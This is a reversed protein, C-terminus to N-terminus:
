REEWAMFPEIRPSLLESHTRAREFLNAILQQNIHTTEDEPVVKSAVDQLSLCTCYIVAKDLVMAKAGIYESNFENLTLLVMYLDTEESDSLHGMFVDVMLFEEDEDSRIYIIFNQEGLLHSWSSMRGDESIELGVEIGLYDKLFLRVADTIPMPRRNITKDM